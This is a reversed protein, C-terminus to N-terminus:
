GKLDKIRAVQYEQMTGVAISWEGPWEEEVDHGPRKIRDYLKVGKGGKIREEEKPNTRMGQRRSERYM